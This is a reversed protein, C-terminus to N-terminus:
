HRVQDTPALHHTHRLLGPTGVGSETQSGAYNKQMDISDIEAHM